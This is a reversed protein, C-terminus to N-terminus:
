PVEEISLTQQAGVERWILLSKDRPQSVVVVGFFLAKDHYNNSHSAFFCDRWILLSKARSNRFATDESCTTTKGSQVILVYQESVALPKKDIKTM